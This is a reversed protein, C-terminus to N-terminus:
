KKLYLIDMCRHVNISNKDQMKMNNLELSEATYHKLVHTKFNFFVINLNHKQFRIELETDFGTHVPSIVQKWTGQM